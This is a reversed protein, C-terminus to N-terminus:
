RGNMYHFYDTWSGEQCHGYAVMGECEWRMLNIHIDINQWATQILSSM